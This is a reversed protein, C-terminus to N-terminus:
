EEHKADDEQQENSSKPQTPPLQLLIDAIESLAPALQELAAPIAHQPIKGSETDVSQELITALEKMPVALNQKKTVIKEDITSASQTIKASSQKISDLQETTDPLPLEKTDSTTTQVAFQEVITAIESLTPALKDLTATIADDPIEGTEPDASNQLITALTEISPALSQKKADIPDIQETTIEETTEVAQEPAIETSVETTEVTEVTEVAQEPAIETSVETTEVTEVTEVPEVLEAIQDTTEPMIAPPIAAVVQESQTKGLSDLKMQVLEKHESSFGDELGDSMALAESYASRADGLRGQLVALDGSVELFSMKFAGASDSVSDLLAKLETDRQEALLLRAKRLQAIHTFEVTKNQKIVWDLHAHAEEYNQEEVAQRALRLTIEVAYASSNYDSLLQSVLERAKELNGQDFSEMAQSYLYSAMEQQSAENAKWARWGFLLVLGLIVGTVVALGNEKWWKKIVEAQELDNEAMAKIGKTYFLSYAIIYILNL